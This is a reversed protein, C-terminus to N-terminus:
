TKCVSRIGRACGSQIWQWHCAQSPWGPSRTMLVSEQDSWSQGLSKILLNRCRFLPVQTVPQEARLDNCLINGPHMWYGILWQRCDQSWLSHVSPQWSGLICSTVSVQRQLRPWKNAQDAGQSPNLSVLHLSSRTGTGPYASCFVRWVGWDAALSLGPNIAASWDPPPVAAPESTGLTVQRATLSRTHTHTCESAGRVEECRKDRLWRLNWVLFQGLLEWLQMSSVQHFTEDYYKDLCDRMFELSFGHSHGLGWKSIRSTAPCAPGKVKVTKM